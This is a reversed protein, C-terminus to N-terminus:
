LWSRPNTGCYRRSIERELDDTMVGGHEQIFREIERDTRSAFYVSVRDAARKVLDAASDLKLAHAIGTDHHHFLALGKAM